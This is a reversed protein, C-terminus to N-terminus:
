AFDINEPKNDLDVKIQRIAKEKKAEEYERILEIMESITLTYRKNLPHTKYGKNQLYETIDM